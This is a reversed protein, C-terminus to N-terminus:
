TGERCSGGNVCFLHGNHDAEASCFSAAKHQCFEGAYAESGTYATTCDCHESVTGEDQEITVCTGGNLCHDEGCQQRDKECYQGSKDETCLCYQMDETAMFENLMLEFSKVGTQCRGGSFCHLNCDPKTGTAFECHTGEFLSGCHCPGEPHDAYDEKCTGNNMCFPIPTHLLFAAGAGVPESGDCITVGDPIATTDIQGAALKVTALFLVVRM